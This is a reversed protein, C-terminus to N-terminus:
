PAVERLNGASSEGALLDFLVAMRVSVGNAVQRHILSNPLASPDILMEVGRNMPGPHMVVADSPLMALRRADLGFRESYERLNPVHGQSMRESQLRLMYLIDTRGVVDDLSHSVTVPWHAVDPPLLTPPAVLVIQAGLMSFAAINSRAVRSHKIDGVITLTLGDFRECGRAERVTFCDVLAQTPHQHWGDGANVVAATTWDSIQWPIGASKHRVVFADVGMDTITEVTDRLSEGKNVSSTSVSFTMTDASLRKAATEFSLRTRTSDEFFLSVVTRGRLAPVKPVPRRNVEVMHNTLDLLRTLGDAGLEPISRLHKM